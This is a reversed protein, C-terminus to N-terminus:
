FALDLLFDAVSILLAAIFTTQMDRIEFDEILLNTLWLM